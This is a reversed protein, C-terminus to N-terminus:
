NILMTCSTCSCDMLVTGDSKVMTSVKCACDPGDCKISTGGVLEENVYDQRIVLNSEGQDTVYFVFAYSQDKSDIYSVNQVKQLIGGKGYAKLYQQVKRFADQDNKFFDTRATNRNRTTTDKNCAFLAIVICITLITRMTKM